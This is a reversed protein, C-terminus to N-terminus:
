FIKNNKLQTGIAKSYFEVAKDYDAAKYYDNGKNKYDEANNIVSFVSSHKALFLLAVKKATKKKSMRM